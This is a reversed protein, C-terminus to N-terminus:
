RQLSGPGLTKKCDGGPNFLQSRRSALPGGRPGGKDTSGRADVKSRGWSSEMVPGHAPRRFPVAPRQADCRFTRNLIARAGPSNSSGSRPWFISTSSTGFPIAVRLDCSCRDSSKKSSTGLSIAVKLRCPLSESRGPLRDSVKKSSTGPLICSESAPGM